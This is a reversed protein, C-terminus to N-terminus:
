SGAFLRNSKWVEQIRSISCLSTIPDKFIQDLSPSPNPVQYFCGNTNRKSMCLVLIESKTTMSEDVYYLFVGEKETSRLILTKVIKTADVGYKLATKVRITVAPRQGDVDYSCNNCANIIGINKLLAEGYQQLLDDYAPFTTGVILIDRM